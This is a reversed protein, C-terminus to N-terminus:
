RFPCSTGDQPKYGLTREADSINFPNCANDSVTFFTSFSRLNKASLCREIFQVCDRHSLYFPYESQAANDDPRVNGFRVAIATLAGGAEAAAARAAEEMWVKTAGYLGSAAPGDSVRIKTKRHFAGHRDKERISAPYEYGGLHGIAAHVSSALILRPVKHTTTAMLVTRVMRENMEHADWTAYDLRGPLGGGGERINWALHIIADPETEAVLTKFRVAEHVLNLAICQEDDKGLRAGYYESDVGVIEYRTTLGRVLVRGITGASGTIIIRM